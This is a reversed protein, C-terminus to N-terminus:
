NYNVNHTGFIYTFIVPTNCTFHWSREMWWSDHINYGACVFVADVHSNSEFAAKMGQILFSNIAAESNGKIHNVYISLNHTKKSWGMSIGFGGFENYFLELGYILDAPITFGLKKALEKIETSNISQKLADFSIHEGKISIDFHYTRSGCGCVEYPYYITTTLISHFKGPGEHGLVYVGGGDKDPLCGGMSRVKGDTLDSAVWGILKAIEDCLFSWWHNVELGNKYLNNISGSKNIPSIMRAEVIYTNNIINPYELYEEYTGNGTMFGFDDLVLTMNFLLEMEELPRVPNYEGDPNIFVHLSINKGDLKGSLKFPGAFGKINGKEDQYLFVEDNISAYEEFDAGTYEKVHTTDPVIVDPALIFEWQGSIDNEVPYVDNNEDKDKCSFVISVLFLILIIRIQKMKIQNKM